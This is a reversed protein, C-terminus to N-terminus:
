VKLKQDIYDKTIKYRKFPLPTWFESSHKNFPRAAWALDATKRRYGDLPHLYPWWFKVGSIKLKTAGKLFSSRYPSLLKSSLWTGFRVHYLYFHKSERSYPVVRATHCVLIFYIYIINIMYKFKLIFRSSSLIFLSLANLFNIENHLGISNGFAM